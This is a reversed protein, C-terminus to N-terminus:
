PQDVDESAEAADLLPDSLLDRAGKKKKMKKKRLEVQEHDVRWYKMTTYARRNKMIKTAVLDVLVAAVKLLVISEFAVSLSTAFNPKGIVGAQLFDLRIGFSERVTRSQLAVNDVVNTVDEVSFFADPMRSVSIKYRLLNPSFMGYDNSYEINIILVMGVERYTQNSMVNGECVHDTCKDDLTKPRGGSNSANEILQRLTFRDPVGSELTVTEGEWTVFQGEM